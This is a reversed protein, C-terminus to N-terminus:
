TVRKRRVYFLVGATVSALCLILIGIRGSPNYEPVDTSFSSSAAALRFDEDIKPVVNEGDWQHPLYLADQMSVIMNRPISADFNFDSEGLNELVVDTIQVSSVVTTAPIELIDLDTESQDMHVLVGDVIRVGAPLVQKQKRSDLEITYSKPIWVSNVRQIDTFDIVLKSVIESQGNEARVTSRVLEFHSPCYNRASDFTAQFKICNDDRTVTIKSGVISKEGFEILDAIQAYQGGDWILGFVIGVDGFGTNRQWYNEPPTLWSTFASALKTEKNVTINLIQNRRILLESYVKPFANSTTKKWLCQNKFDIKWLEEHSVAPKESNKIKGTYVSRFAISSLEQLYNKYEANVDADIIFSRDQGLVSSGVSCLCLLWVVFAKWCM